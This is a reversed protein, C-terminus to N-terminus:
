TKKAAARKRREPFNLPVSLKAKAVAGSGDLDQSKSMKCGMYACYDRVKPMSVGLDLAVCKIPVAAFDCVHMFVVVVYAVLLDRHRSSFISKGDRDGPDMFTQLVREGIIEPPSELKKIVKDRFVGRRVGPLTKMLQLMRILLDLYAILQVKVPDVEAAEAHLYRMAAIVTRKYDPDQEWAAIQKLGASGPPVEFLEAANGLYSLESRTIIKNLPYANAAETASKDYPPIVRGADPDASAVSTEHTVKSATLAHSSRISDADTRYQTLASLKAKKAKGGFSATLQAQAAYIQDRSGLERQTTEVQELLKVRPRMEHFEADILRLEGGSVVGVFYRSDASGAASSYRVRATDATLAKRKHGSGSLNGSSDVAGESEMEEFAFTLGAASTADSVRPTGNSFRAVVAAAGGGEYRVTLEAM